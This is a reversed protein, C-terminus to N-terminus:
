ETVDNGLIPNCYVQFFNVGRQSPFPGFRYGFDSAKCAKRSVIPPENFPECPNKSWHCLEDSLILQESPRLLTLITKLQQFLPQSRCRHKHQEFHPSRVLDVTISREM